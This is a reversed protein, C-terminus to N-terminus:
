LILCGLAFAGMAVSLIGVLPISQHTTVAASSGKGKSTASITALPFTTTALESNLLRTVSAIEATLYSPVNGGISFQNVSCSAVYVSSLSNTKVSCIQNMAVSATIGATAFYYAVSIAYSSPAQTIVPTITIVQGLTSTAIGDVSFTTTAGDTAIITAKGNIYEEDSL